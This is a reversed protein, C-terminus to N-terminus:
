YTMSPCPAREPLAAQLEMTVDLEARLALMLQRLSSRDQRELGLYRACLQAVQAELGDLRVLGGAAALARTVRLTQIVGDASTAVETRATAASISSRSMHTIAETM